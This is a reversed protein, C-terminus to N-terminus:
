KELMVCGISSGEGEEDNQFHTDLCPHAAVVQALASKVEAASVGEPLTICVPINYQIDDPNAMCEAYIGMQSFSLPASVTAVDHAVDTAASADIIPALEQITPHRLIDRVGLNANLRNGVLVSLRIALLSTLGVSFLNTTIGFESNDLMEAVIDFLAQEGATAPKLREEEALTLEPQPLARLDTKGNPSLPMKDIAVFITPVMYHTLRKGMQEKLADPTVKDALQTPVYYAVLHDHGEVTRIMVVGEKVQPQLNLVTEVEGLEIRLGNLKIQNDKRGLIEIEGTKNWFAYDGSKYCRKGNYTIFAEATKEPLDNYGTAVGAGGILLEGVVGVPLENGDEDVVYEEVNLLPRGITIHEAATLEKGNCSVSIETPGYTNFLRAQPALAKVQPLLSPPYKEGGLVIFKCKAFAKQFDTLELFMKLRSPTGSFGDVGTTLMLQALARPDNVQNEDAFVLTMGNYLSAGIEKLSLDFCVTTISLMRKCDNVLAHFHRNEPHPSLYNCIGKHPIMVGKPRGTSGSTYILYALASSAIPLSPNSSTEPFTSALLTEVDIASNDYDALKDQTTIIYRSHSDETILKIRDTPYEPDCPIYAAGAKMVGFMAIIHRSTRPLLLCVRDGPAVGKAILAHAIRNAQENLERYTLTENAAILAIAEPTEQAWYEVSEHFLNFRVAGADICSHHMMEVEGQQRASMISVLRLPAEPNDLFRAIVADMSEAFRAVFDSSYKATDYNLVIAPRGDRNHITITLSSAHSNPRLSEVKLEGEPLLYQNGLTGYQYVFRVHQELGYDNALKAFPYEEHARVELTHQRVQHVFAEVSQEEIKEVVPLTHVFMGVTDEALKNSRGNSITTLCLERSNAYRSLTYLSAALFLASPATKMAKARAIVEPTSVLQEVEAHPGESGDLDGAIQTAAAGQPFLKDYFAKHDSLDCPQGEAYEAYTHREAAIEGGELLTCLEGLMVDLSAGDYVLHHMDLLLVVGGEADIVEARYLPGHQIDFPRVFAKREAETGKKVAVSARNETAYVQYVEGGRDEFHSFFVVHNEIMTETASRVAEASIGQPFTVSKPNNYQLDEPNLISDIYVGQQAFTIRSERM